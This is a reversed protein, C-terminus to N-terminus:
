RRVGCRDRSRRKDKTFTRNLRICSPVISQLSVKPVVIDDGRLFSARLSNCAENEETVLTASAGLQFGGMFVMYQRKQVARSVTQDLRLFRQLPQRILDGWFSSIGILALASVVITLANTITPNRYFPRLRADVAEDTVKRAINEVYARIAEDGAMKRDISSSVEARVFNELSKRDEM